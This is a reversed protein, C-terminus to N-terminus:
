KKRKKSHSLEKIADEDGMSAAKRLWYRHWRSKGLKKYYVALNWAGAPHGLKVARKYMRVAKFPQVPTLGDDYINGLNIHAPSFGMRAAQEYLSIAKLLAGEEQANFAETFVVLPDEASKRSM